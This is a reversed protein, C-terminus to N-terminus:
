DPLPAPVWKKLLLKKSIRLNKAWFGFPCCIISNIRTWIRVYAQFRNFFTDFLWFITFVDLICSFPLFPMFVPLFSMNKYVRILLPFLRMQDRRQRRRWTTLDPKRTEDLKGKEWSTKGNKEEKRVKM